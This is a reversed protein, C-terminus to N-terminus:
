WDLFPDDKIPLPTSLVDSDPFNSFNSSDSASLVTPTYEPRYEKRALRSFDYGSFWRHNKIDNVGRRLNGYRKSLDAIVLHRILSKANRDFNRPFRIKGKLIKQYIVMPDDDTFPDQGAMM